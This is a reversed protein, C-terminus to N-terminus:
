QVIEEQEVIATKDSDSSRKSVLFSKIASKAKTTAGWTEKGAESSTMLMSYSSLSEGEKSNHIGYLFYVLIGLFNYMVYGIGVVIEVKFNSRGLMMWIFFRLWTLINLHVMFELNCFISLAPVLPVLPVRFGIAATNQNHAVIVLIGSIFIFM